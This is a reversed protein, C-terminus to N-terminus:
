EEHILDILDASFRLDQDQNALKPDIEVLGFVMVIDTFKPELGLM